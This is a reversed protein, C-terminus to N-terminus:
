SIGAGREERQAAVASTTRDHIAQPCLAEVGIWIAGRSLRGSLSSMKANWPPRCRKEEDYHREKPKVFVPPTKEILVTPAKETSMRARGGTRGVCGPDGPRPAIALSAVAAACRVGYAGHGSCRAATSRHLALPPLEAQYLQQKGFMGAEVSVALLPVGLRFRGCLLPKVPSPAWPVM